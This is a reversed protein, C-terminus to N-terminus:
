RNEQNAAFLREGIRLLAESDGCNFAHLQGLKGALLDRPWENAMDEHIRLCRDTEGDIWAETTALWAQERPPANIALKRAPALHRPAAERGEDSHMSLVLNAAMLPLMACTEESEAAAIFAALRNGFGLWEERLFDLSAIAGATANSVELGQG